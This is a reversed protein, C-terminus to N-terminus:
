LHLVMHFYEHGALLRTYDARFGLRDYLRKAAPNDVEVLLALRSHKLQRAWDCGTAILLRGYGRGQCRPTVSLTDLYFESGEAETPVRYNFDGTRVAAARELPEDLERAKAGEYFIALGVLEGEEEMVLTNQYSLRNDEQQFFASLISVTEQLDTTATLVFALDGIAQWILPAAKAADSRIAQRIMGVKSPVNKSIPWSSGFGQKM